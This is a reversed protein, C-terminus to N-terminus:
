TLYALLLSTYIHYTVNKYLFLSLFLEVYTGIYRSEKLLRSTQFAVCWLTIVPKRLPFFFFTLIFLYTFIKFSFFLM